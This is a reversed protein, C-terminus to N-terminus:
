KMINIMGKYTYCNLLHLTFLEDGLKNLYHGDVEGDNRGVSSLIKDRVQRRKKKSSLVVNLKEADEATSVPLPFDLETSIDYATTPCSNEIDPRISLLKDCKINIDALLDM